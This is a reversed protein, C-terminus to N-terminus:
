DKETMKESFDKLMKVIEDDFEKETGSLLLDTQQDALMQDILADLKFVMKYIDDNM